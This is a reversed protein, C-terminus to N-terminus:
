HQYLFETSNVLAWALDVAAARTSLASSSLLSMAKKTEAETPTRSLIQRYLERVQEARKEASLSLAKQLRPGQEIKKRVETSNLLYRLQEEDVASSRESALGSDRAPRGFRMLFASTISGDALSISRATTPIYTFPEPIASYYAEGTGGIRDLADILVEADLRRIGYRAWAISPTDSATAPSTTPQPLSSQQYTRSNLIIRYLARIDYGSTVFESALFDLVPSVDTSTINDVPEIIGLGFFRAWARNVAARAFWPNEPSLLWDTFVARPDVGPKITVPTGDPYRTSVAGTAPKIVVIEEKWELTKKYDICSFFAMFDTKAATPLDDFCLAMWTLAVTKAITAPTKAELARYFNSEPQRFNSGSGLLLARAFADYPMNKRVADSVWLHYAQTANPWLNIPFESKIRLLDAWKLSTYEVYEERLFLQDVLAARKLPSPDAIFADVEEPEPVTGLLDLFARRIFVTDSAPLNLSAGQKTLMQLVIEDLATAGIPWRAVEFPEVPKRQEAFAPYGLATVFIMALILVQRM